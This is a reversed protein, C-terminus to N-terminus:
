LWGPKKKMGIIIDDGYHNDPYIVLMSCMDDIPDCDERNGIENNALADVNALLVDSMEGEKQSNYINMGSVAVVMALVTMKLVKMNELNTLNIIIM